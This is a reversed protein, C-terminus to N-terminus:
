RQKTLAGAVGYGRASPVESPIDSDERKVTLPLEKESVLRYGRQQMCDEMFRREYEGVRKLDTRKRLEARCATRDAKCEDFTKGEQYWYKQGCGAVLLLALGPIGLVLCMRTQFRGNAKM